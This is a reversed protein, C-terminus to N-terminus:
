AVEKDDIKVRRKGTLLQQMLAKREQKFDDLQKQLLEIEKDANTLVNAIKQQEEIAPLKLKISKLISLNLGGRGGDGTSMARLERYRNDLNFYLFDSDLKQENPMIAAISQNTCVKIRNIAVTGRTKGQGALAILVSNSPIEKTSSKKLGLETIRGEVSYVQKLNIEGSNMWPIEGGWYELHKTSPTGGATLNAVAGVTIEEWDDEFSNGTDDLMRKKGTLLQQMLAKKQQKSNDILHETTSIAKEWASLIQAIKRQEVISPLLVRFKKLDKTNIHLITSGVELGKLRAKGIESNMYYSLFKPYVFQSKTRTVILAHCNAGEYKKPVVATEGIHGSQVTLLDGERLETKFQKKHFEQNIYRIGRPDIKNARVNTGYLYPVGNENTYHPTATGVFGNTILSSVDELYPADWDLPSPGVDHPTYRERNAKM